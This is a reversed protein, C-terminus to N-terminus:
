YLLQRDLLLVLLVNAEINGEHVKLRWRWDIFQIKWSRGGGVVGLCIKREKGLSEIRSSLYSMAKRDQVSVFDAAHDLLKASESRGKSGMHDNRSPVRILIEGM